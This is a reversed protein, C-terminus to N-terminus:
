VPSFVLLAGATRYFSRIVAIKGTLRGINSVSFFRPSHRRRM